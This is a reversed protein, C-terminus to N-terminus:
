KCRTNDVESIAQYYIKLERRYKEMSSFYSWLSREIALKYDIKESLKGNYFNRHFFDSLTKSSTINLIEQFLDSKSQYFKYIMPDTVGARAAIDSIKAVRYNSQSFVDIAARLIVRKRKEAPLRKTKLM